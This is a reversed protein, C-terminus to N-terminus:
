WNAGCEVFAFTRKKLIRRLHERSITAVLHRQQILFACFNSLTWRADVLGFEQPSLQALRVIEALQEPTLQAPAGGQPLPCLCALANEDFAHLDAYVTNPPVGLAMAIETGSLGNAYALLVQARRQVQPDYESELAADLRQIERLTQKRIQLTRAM